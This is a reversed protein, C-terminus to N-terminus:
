LRCVLTKEVLVKAVEEKGDVICTVALDNLQAKEELSVVKVILNANEVKQLVAECILRKKAINDLTVIIAAANEIHLADLIHAKSADGLYAEHNDRLAERVHKNSNDVVIFTSEREKLFHTVFKGVVSYGCVIVHNNRGSMASFDSAEIERVHLLKEVLTNIYPIFFPTLVMSFIVVLVLLSVLENKIIGGAFAAAFIVFSFEGVQSLALATKLATAKTNFFRLFVFMIVTKVILVCTFLAVIIGLNELFMVVDIKM